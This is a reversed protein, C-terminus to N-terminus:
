SATEATADLLALLEAARGDLTRILAADEPDALHDRLTERWEGHLVEFALLADPDDFWVCRPVLHAPANLRVTEAVLNRFGDLHMRATWGALVVTLRFALRHPDVTSTSPAARPRLLVDEIVRLGEGARSLLVLARRLRNATSIAASREAFGGVLAADGQESGDDLLLRWRGDAGDLRYRELDVGAHLLRPDLTGPPLLGDARLGTLLDALDTAAGDDTLPVLALLPNAPHEQAAAGLREGAAVPGLELDHGHLSAGLWQGPPPAQMELLLAIREAFAGVAEADGLDPAGARDRTLRAISALLRERNALVAPGREGPTRYVDFTRLSNQTFAEGYLALLHELVRGRRDLVDDREALRDAMATGAAPYLDRDTAPLLPELAASRYTRGDGEAAFLRPVAAIDALTDALVQELPLLYGRLQRARVRSALPASRPLGEVSVGFAAPLHYQFPTYVGLDRWTGAPPHIVAGPDDVLRLGRARELRLRHLHRRLRVADVPLRRGRSTLALRETEAATRPTELALVPTADTAAALDATEIEIRLERVFMVGELTGVARFFAEPARGDARQLDAPRLGLAAHDDGDSPPLGHLGLPGDFVEDLPRGSRRLEEFTQRRGERGLLRACCDHIEAALESPDRGREVEVVGFVSCRVEHAPRVAAADEGVDRVADYAARSRRLLDARAVSATADAWLFVDVVGPVGGAEPRIAADELGRVRDFLAHRLDNATSPRAPLAATPPALALAALDLGDPSGTLLDATPFDLRYAVDSLAYAIAELLMVGPDHVNYDTWREGALAQIRGIGRRRLMDFDVAAESM